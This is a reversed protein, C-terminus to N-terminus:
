PCATSDNCVGVINSISTVWGDLLDGGGMTFYGEPPAITTANFRADHSHCRVVETGAHLLIRAAAYTTLTVTRVRVYPFSGLAGAFYGSGGATLTATAIGGQADMTIAVTAVTLPSATPETSVRTASEVSVLPLYNGGTGSIVAVAKGGSITLSWGTARTRSPNYVEEISVALTGDAYGSGPHLINLATVAGSSSMVACVQIQVGGSPPAALTVRPRYNGPDILEVSDISLGRTHPDPAGKWFPMHREVWTLRYRDKVGIQMASPLVFYYRSKRISGSFGCEDLYMANGWGNSPSTSWAGVFTLERSAFATQMEASTVPNEHIIRFYGEVGSVAGPASPRALWEQIISGGAGETITVGTLRWVDIEAEHAYCPRPAPGGDIKRIVYQPSTYQTSSIRTPPVFVDYPVEGSHSACDTSIINTNGIRTDTRSPTCGLSDFAWNISGSPYQSSGSWTNTDVPVTPNESWTSLSVDLRVTRFYADCLGMGAPLDDLEFVNACLTGQAYAIDWWPIPQPCTCCLACNAAISM